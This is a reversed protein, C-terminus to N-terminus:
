TDATTAAVARHAITLANVVGISQNLLNALQGPTYKHCEYVTSQDIEDGFDYDEGITLLEYEGNVLSYYHKHRKYTVDQTQVYTEVLTSISSQDSPFTSLHGEIQARAIKDKINYVAGGYNM